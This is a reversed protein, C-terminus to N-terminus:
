SVRKLEDAFKVAERRVHDALAPNIISKIKGTKIGKEAATKFNIIEEAAGHAAELPVPRQQKLERFKSATAFAKNMLDREDPDLLHGIFDAHEGMIQAWFGVVETRDTDTEGRSFRDLRSVFREAERATHEFFLPWVLSHLRGSTQADQMTHKFDIFPRVMDATTRNVTQYNTRDISMGRVRGLHSEFRRQFGQAQAREDNLDDGPMLLAFFLAHEMMIDTWFLTDAVSMSVPDTAGEQPLVVPKSGGNRTTLKAAGSPLAVASALSPLASSCAAVTGIAGISGLVVLERRTLGDPKSDSKSM